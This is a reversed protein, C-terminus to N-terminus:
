AREQMEIGIRQQRRQGLARRRRREVPRREVGVRARHAVQRRAGGLGELARQAIGSASTAMTAMASAYSNPARQELAALALKCAAGGACLVVRARREDRAPL